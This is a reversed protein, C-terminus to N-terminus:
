IGQLQRGRQCSMVAGPMINVIETADRSVLTLQQLDGASITYSKEGSETQALETETSTVEVTENASGVKLPISM